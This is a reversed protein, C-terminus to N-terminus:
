QENYRYIEYFHQPVYDLVYPFNEMPFPPMATDTYYGQFVYIVENGRAYFAHPMTRIVKNCMLDLTARTKPSIHRYRMPDDYAACIPMLDLLYIEGPVLSELGDKGRGKPWHIYTVKVSYTKNNWSLALDQPVGPIVNDFVALGEEGNFDFQVFIMGEESGAHTLAVLCLVLLIQKM